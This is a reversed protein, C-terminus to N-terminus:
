ASAVIERQKRIDLHIGLVFRQQLVQAHGHAIAFAHRGAEAEPRAKQVGGSLSVFAAGVAAYEQLDGAVIRLVQRNGPLLVSESHHLRCLSGAAEWNEGAGFLRRRASRTCRPLSTLAPSVLSVSSTFCIRHYSRSSDRTTHRRAKPGDRALSIL